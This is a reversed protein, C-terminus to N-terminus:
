LFRTFCQSKESVITYYQRNTDFSRICNILPTAIMSFSNLSFCFPVVTLVSIMAPRVVKMVMAYMMASLGFRNVSKVFFPPCDSQFPTNRAVQIAEAIPVNTMANKAFLGNAIAGPIPSLENKATTTPLMALMVLREYM